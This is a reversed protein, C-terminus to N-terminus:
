KGEEKGTVDVWQILELPCFYFAQEYDSYRKDVRKEVTWQKHTKGHVIAVHTEAKNYLMFAFPNPKANDFAHKACVIFKDGFPWDAANTFKASLHKVEVRQTIYLDGDDQHKLRDEYSPRISMPNVTVPYGKGQLWQAAKWVTPNSAELHKVFKQSNMEHNNCASM